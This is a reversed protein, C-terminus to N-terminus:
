FGKFFSVVTRPVDYTSDTAPISEQQYNQINESFSENVYIAEKSKIEVVKRPNSRPVDYVVEVPPSNHQPAENAVTASAYDNNKTTTKNDNPNLLVVVPIPPVKPCDYINLVDSDGGMANDNMEIDNTHYEDALANNRQDSTSAARHKGNKRESTGNKRDSTANNRQDSTRNNRESTDELNDSTGNTPDSTEDTKHHRFSFITVLNNMIQDTAQRNPVTLM